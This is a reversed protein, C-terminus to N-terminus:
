VVRHVRIRKRIYLFHFLFSLADVFKRKEWLHTHIHSIFTSINTTNRTFICMQRLSPATAIFSFSDSRSHTHTNGHFIYHKQMLDFCPFKFITKLFCLLFRAHITFHDVPLEVFLFHYFFEVLMFVSAGCVSRETNNNNNKNSTFM